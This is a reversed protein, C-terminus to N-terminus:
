ENGAEPIADLTVSARAKPAAKNAANKASVPCQAAFHDDGGCYGCLNLRKRRDKEASSLHGSADLHKANPNKSKPTPSSQRSASPSKSSSSNPTTARNSNTTTKKETTVTTSSSATKQKDGRDGKGSKSDKGKDKRKDDSESDKNITRMLWYNRDHTKMKLRLGNYTAPIQDASNALWTRIRPAVNRLLLNYFSRDSWGDIRVKYLEFKEIWTDFRHDDAMRLARIKTENWELEDRLGFRIRLEECFAEYDNSWEPEDVGERHQNLYWIEPDGDLRSGAFSIKMDDSNDGSYLDDYYHFYRALSSLFDGLKDRHKGDFKDPAALKDKKRTPAPQSGAVAGAFAEALRLLDAATLGTTPPANGPQDSLPAGTAPPTLGTIPPENEPEEGPHARTAPPM